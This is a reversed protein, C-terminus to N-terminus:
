KQQSAESKLVPFYDSKLMEEKIKTMKEKIKTLSDKIEKALEDETKRMLEKYDFDRCYGIGDPLTYDPCEDEEEDYGILDRLENDEVYYLKSSTPPMLKNYLVVAKQFLESEAGRVNDDPSYEEREEEPITKNYGRILYLINKVISIDTADDSSREELGAYELLIPVPLHGENTGILSYYSSLDGIEDLELTVSCDKDFLCSISVISKISKTFNPIKNEVSNIEEDIARITNDIITLVYQKVENFPMPYFYKENIQRNIVSIIKEKELNKLDDFSKVGFYWLYTRLSTVPNSEKYIQVNIEDEKEGKIVTYKYNDISIEFSDNTVSQKIINVGLSRLYKEVNRSSVIHYHYFYDHTPTTFVYYGNTYISFFPSVKKPDTAYVPDINLVIAVNNLYDRHVKIFSFDKHLEISVPDNLVLLKELENLPIDVKWDELELLVNDLVVKNESIRIVIKKIIDAIPILKKLLSLIEGNRELELLKELDTGLFELYFVPKSLYLKDLVERTEKDIFDRIKEYKRWKEIGLVILEKTDQDFLLSIDDDISLYFKKNKNTLYIKDDDGTLNIIENPLSQLKFMKFRLESFKLKDLNVGFAESLKSLFVKADHSNKINSEIYVNNDSDTYLTFEVEHFQCKYYYGSIKYFFDDVFKGSRYKVDGLSQLFEKIKENTHVSQKM